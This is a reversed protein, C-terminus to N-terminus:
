NHTTKRCNERPHESGPKKEKGPPVQPSRRLRIKGPHLHNAHPVGPIRPFQGPMGGTTNAVVSHTTRHVIAIIDSSVFHRGCLIASKKVGNRSRIPEPNKMDGHLCIRISRWKDGSATIRPTVCVSYGIAPLIIGSVCETPNVRCTEGVPHVVPAGFTFLIDMRGLVPGIIQSRRVLIVIRVAGVIRRVVNM